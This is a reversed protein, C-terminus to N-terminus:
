GDSSQPLRIVLEKPALPDMRRFKPWKSCVLCRSQSLLYLESMKVCSFDRVKGDVKHSYKDEIVATDDRM